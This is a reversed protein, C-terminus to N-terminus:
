RAIGLGRLTAVPDILGHGCENDYGVPALDQAFQKIAAEVAAPSTIGQSILLAALGSVHPAAMSTGQLHEYVM